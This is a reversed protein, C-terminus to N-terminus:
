LRMWRETTSVFIRCLFGRVTQRWFSPLLRFQMIIATSSCFSSGSAVGLSASSRLCCSPMCLWTVSSFLDRTSTVSFRSSEEFTWLKFSFSSSCELCSSCLASFRLRSSDSFRVRRSSFWAKLIALLLFRRNRACIRGM